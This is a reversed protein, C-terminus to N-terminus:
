RLKMLLNTAKSGFIHRVEFAAIFAIGLLNALVVLITDPSFGKSSMQNLMTLREVLEGYEKETPDYMVLEELLKKKAEELLKKNNKDMYDKRYPAENYGM